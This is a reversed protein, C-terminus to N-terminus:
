KEGKKEVQRKGKLMVKFAIKRNEIGVEAGLNINKAGGAIVAKINKIDAGFALMSKILYCTSIKGYKGNKESNGNREEGSFVFHNMGAIKNISDWLCVSICSGLITEILYEENTVFIEGPNLFVKKIDGNEM